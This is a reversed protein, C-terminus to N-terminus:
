KARHARLLAITADPDAVEISLKKYREHELSLVITRTLDRVGRFVREGHYYFTGAAFLGPIEAGIGSNARPAAVQRM